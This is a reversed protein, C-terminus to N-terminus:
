DKAELVQQSIKERLYNLLEQPTMQRKKTEARAWNLLSWLQLLPMGHSTLALTNGCSCHAFTMTGLPKAPKWDGYEADYPIAPGAIKTSQIFERLTEYRRDCTPCIKPFLGELHERMARIVEAETMTKFAPLM